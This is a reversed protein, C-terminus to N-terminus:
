IIKSTYYNRVSFLFQNLNQEYPLVHCKMFKSITVLPIKILLEKNKINRIWGWEERSPLM